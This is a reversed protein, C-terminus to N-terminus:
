EEFPDTETSPDCPRSSDFRASRVRHFATAEEGNKGLLIVTPLGLVHYRDKVENVAPDDEQTADVKVAVFRSSEVM